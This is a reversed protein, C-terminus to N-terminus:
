RIINNFWYALDLPISWKQFEVSYKNVARSFQKRLISYSYNRALLNTALFKTRIEFDVRLSCLRQFRIVQGYFVRYCIKSDINSELYPLSIVSFPFHDAKCYISTRIRGNEIVAVMDLVNARDLQDNEQTLALSPPYIQGAIQLFNDINLTTCDDRYRRFFRLKDAEDIHGAKIKTEVYKYEDVMLSCDSLWGSSKGGMIIGKVQRFISGFAKIYSNRVLYDIMELVEELSYVIGDASGSVWWANEKSVKLHRHGSNKALKQLLWTINGLLHEHDFLTYLTSFDNISISTVPVAASDFMSKVEESTKVDFVYKRGSFEENKRCLNIFHNKCGKLILAVTSDIQSTVTSVNGAIYRMKPPNKHFKPTQYLLALKEEKRDPVFRFKGVDSRIKDVVQQESSDTYGYTDNGPSARDMGLELALKTFYFKKCTFAFNNAAKDVVTIVYKDQLRSLEAKCSHDSLVPLRYSNKAFCAGLKSRFGRIFARRWKKLVSAAVSFKRSLRGKLLDFGRIMEQSIKGVNLYPNERFKTGFSCLERLKVDQIIALDGTIVHGYNQDRFASEECDCSLNLIDDYSAVGAEKLVQNYNLIKVVLLKVM